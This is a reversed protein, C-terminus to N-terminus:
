GIKESESGDGELRARIADLISWGWVPKPVVLPAIHKDGHLGDFRRPDSTVLVPLAAPRNRRLDALAANVAQASFDDPFLVVASLAPLTMESSRGIHRTGWPDDGDSRKAARRDRGDRGRHDGLRADRGYGSGYLLLPTALPGDSYYMWSVKKAELEDLVSLPNGPYPYMTQEALPFPGGTQTGSFSTAAYLYLRNPWTPGPVSCHYHDAIAFTSALEYYFPLDRQAYWWLARGGNGLSPDLTGGDPAAPM